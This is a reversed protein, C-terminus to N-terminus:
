ISSQYVVGANVSAGSLKRILLSDTSEEKKDTIVVCYGVLWLGQVQQVKTTNGIFSSHADSGTHQYRKGAHRTSMRPSDNFLAISFVM